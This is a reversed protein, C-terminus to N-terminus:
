STYTLPTRTVSGTRTLVTAAMALVVRGPQQARTSLLGAWGPTDRTALHSHTTTAPTAELDQV